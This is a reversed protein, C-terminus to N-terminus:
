LAQQKRFMRERAAEVERQFKQVERSIEEKTGFGEESDPLVHPSYVVRNVDIPKRYLDNNKPGLIFFHTRKKGIYSKMKLKFERETVNFKENSNQCWLKYADFLHEHSACCLPFPTEEKTWADIFRGLSTGGLLKLEQHWETELADTSECFDGLEINLLYNYLAEIGGNNIQEALEKFYKPNSYENFKICMYRRDFRDLEAPKDENSLFVINTKNIEFRAPLGKENIIHRESTILNKLVGKLYRRDKSAVVEEAVVFLKKSIWGNFDSSMMTQNVSCAYEGYIKQMVNFFMSKGTGEREGYIILATHMKAGPHQLPYALWRLVWKFYDDNRACIKYLHEILLDCQGARPKLPWGTFMTISDKPVKKPDPEFILQDPQILRRNKFTNQLWASVTRSDYPQKIIAVKTIRDQYLDWCTDTGDIYVFRDGLEKIINSDFKREEKQKKQPFPEVPRLNKWESLQKAVVEIGEECALDNFDTGNTEKNTFQPIIVVSKFRSAAINAYAVGTNRLTRKNPRSQGPKKCSYVICPSGDEKSWFAKIEYQGEPKNVYQVPTERSSGIKLEIGFKSKVETLLNRKYHADNDACIVVNASSFRKRLGEVVPLINGADFAVIVPQKVAEYISCGTAWGECVFIVDSDETLKGLPAYSGKKDTGKLFLKVIELEGDSDAQEFITQLGRLKKDRYVPILIQERLQKAGVPIIKKKLIYPHSASIAPNASAWMKDAKEAAEKRKKEIAAEVIRNDEEKRSAIEKWEEITWGARKHEIKYQEGAVGFVGFYYSKGSTLFHEWIGYYADKNKKWSSNVPKFRKWNEGNAVLQEGMPLFIGQEAM